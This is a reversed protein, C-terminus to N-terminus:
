PEMNTTDSVVPRSNDIQASYENQLSIQVTGTRRAERRLGTILDIRRETKEEAVLRARIEDEVEEIDRLDGNGARAILKVVMWHSDMEFPLTPDNVRLKSIRDVIGRPLRSVNVWGTTDITIDTHLKIIETGKRAEDMANRVQWGYNRNPCNAVIIRVQDESRTFEAPHEQWYTIIDEDSPEPTDLEADLMMNIMMEERLMQIRKEIEPHEDFGRKEAEYLMLHRDVWMNLYQNRIEESESDLGMGNLKETLDSRYLVEKGVRALEIKDSKGRGECGIISILIWVLLLGSYTTYISRIITKGYPPAQQVRSSKEIIAHKEHLSM